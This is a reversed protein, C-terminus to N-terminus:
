ENADVTAPRAREVPVDRPARVALRVQEGRVEVVTVEIDDGIRVSEGPRRTLVLM